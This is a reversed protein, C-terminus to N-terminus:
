GRVTQPLRSGSRDTSASPAAAAAGVLPDAGAGGSIFWVPADVRDPPATERGDRDCIRLIPYRRAFASM